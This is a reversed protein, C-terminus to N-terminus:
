REHSAPRPHLKRQCDALACGVAAEAEQKPRAAHQYSDYAEATIEKDAAKQRAESVKIGTWVVLFVGVFIVTCGIGGPALVIFAQLALAATWHGVIGESVNMAVSKGIM